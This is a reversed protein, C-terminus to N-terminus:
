ITIYKAKDHKMGVKHVQHKDDNVRSLHQYISCRRKM